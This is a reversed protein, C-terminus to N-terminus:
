VVLDDSLPVWNPVQAVSELRAFPLHSIRAFLLNLGLLFRFITLFWHTKAGYSWKIKQFITSM